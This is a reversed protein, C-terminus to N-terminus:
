SVQVEPVEPPRQTTLVGARRVAVAEAVEWGAQEVLMRIPAATGVQELVQMRLSEVLAVGAEVQRIQRLVQVEALREEVM